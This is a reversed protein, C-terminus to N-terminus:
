YEDEALSSKADVKQRADAKQMPKRAGASKGYYKGYTTYFRYQEDHRIDVINLVIGLVTAGLGKLVNPASLQVRGTKYVQPCAVALRRNPIARHGRYHKNLSSSIGIPVPQKKKTRRKPM